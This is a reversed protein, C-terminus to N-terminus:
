MGASRGGELWLCGPDLAAAAQEYLSLDDDNLVGRWRGNSGKYLFRDTGGEFIMAAPDGDGDSGKAEARMADLQVAAVIAPWRDDPVEIGCFDVLCRIEGETDALLDGFHVFHM